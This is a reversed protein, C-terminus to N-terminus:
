RGEGFAVGAHCLRIDRPGLGGPSIGRLCSRGDLGESEVEIPCERWTLRVHDERGRADGEGQGHRPGAGPALSRGLHVRDHVREGRVVVGAPEGREVLLERLAAPRGGVIHALCQRDRQPDGVGREGLFAHGQLGGVELREGRTEAGPDAQHVITEAVSSARSTM